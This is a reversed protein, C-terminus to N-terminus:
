MNDLRALIAQIQNKLDQNETQLIEIMHQQEQIAKIITPIFETTGLFYIKEEENYSVAEPIIQLVEQAIFGMRHSNNSDDQIYDFNVANLLKIDKLGYKL